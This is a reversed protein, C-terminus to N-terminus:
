LYVRDFYPHDMAHKASISDAPDYKLMKSLLDVGEPGLSPVVRALNQAEWHLYVHWDNLSSVWGKSMVIPVRQLTAILDLALMLKKFYGPWKQFDDGNLRWSREKM